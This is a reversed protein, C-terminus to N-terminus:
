IWVHADFAADTHVSHGEWNLNPCDCYPHNWIKSIVYPIDCRLVKNKDIRLPFRRHLIISCSKRTLGTISFPNNTKWTAKKPRLRLVRRCSLKKTPTLSKTDVTHIFSCVGRTKPYFVTKKKDMWSHSAADQSISGNRSLLSSSTFIRTKHFWWLAENVCRQLQLVPWNVWFNLWCLHNELVWLPSFRKAEKDDSLFKNISDTM